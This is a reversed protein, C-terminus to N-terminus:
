WSLALFFNLTKDKIFHQRTITDGGSPGETAERCLAMGFCTFDEMPTLGRKIGCRGSMSSLTVHTREAM